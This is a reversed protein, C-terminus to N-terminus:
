NMPYIISVAGRVQDLGYGVAKDDPYLRKIEKLADPNLKDPTGHCNLCTNETLVPKMFRLNKKGNAATMVELYAPKLKGAAQDQEMNKLVATEYEDPANASNRTKLTVRRISAKYKDSVEKAKTPGIERCVSIAAAFGQEKITSLLTGKLAGGLEGAMEKAKETAQEKTSEAYVTSSMIVLPVLISLFIKM